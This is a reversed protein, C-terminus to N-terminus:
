RPASSAIEARAPGTRGLNEPPTPRALLFGQALDRRGMAQLRSLQVDTEVGEAVVRLRLTRALQVVARVIAEDEVSVGLGAVFDRDIKVVSFPFRRLYSLSSYGTGFDDIALQVGLERLEDLRLSAIEPDRPMYTETVELTLPLRAM